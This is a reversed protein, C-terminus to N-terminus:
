PKREEGAPPVPAVDNVGNTKRQQFLRGTIITILSGVITSIVGWGQAISDKDAGHHMLHLLFAGALVLLFALLLKDFQGKAFEILEHTM